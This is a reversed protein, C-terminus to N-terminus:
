KWSKLSEHRAAAAEIATEIDSASVQDADSFCAYIRGDPATVYIRPIGSSAFMAYVARDCQPSYPMTLGATNWYAEITVSDEERAICVFEARDGLAEYARQVEPLERQCDECSTNFFTIVGVQGSLMSSSIIRGDSLEVEFAPLADGSSLSFAPEERDTICSSALLASAFMCFVKTLIRM